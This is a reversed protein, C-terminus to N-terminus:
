LCYKELATAMSLQCNLRVVASFTFILLIGHLRQKYHTYLATIAALKWELCVICAFKSPSSKEGKEVFLKERLTAIFVGEKM